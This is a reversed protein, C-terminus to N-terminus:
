ESSWQPVGLDSVLAVNSQPPCVSEVVKVLQVLDGNCVLLSAKLISFKGLMLAYEINEGVEECSSLAEKRFLLPVVKLGIVFSAL